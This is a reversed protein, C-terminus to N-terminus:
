KGNEQEPRFLDQMLRQFLDESEQLAKKVLAKQQEIKEVIAAFRTQLSLPPLPILLSNIDRNSINAQRVGRSIGTLKKKIQSNKLVFYVYWKNLQGRCKLKANRQNLYYRTYSDDLICVNGYDEKGVTGTMSILLDGPELIYRKLEPKEIVFVMNLINFQGTNINGIRILPIGNECYEKSKFAYGGIIELHNNLFDLNWRKENKVPDGFMEYFVSQVLNDLEELRKKQFYILQRVKELISVIGKQEELSPYKIIKENLFKKNLTIGKVAKNGGINWNQVQLSYWLFDNLIINEDIPLFAIIAENTYTLKTTIAVKGVSLKFSMLVVNEPVVKIQCEKVAQDTITEKTEIIYKECKTIDSISIWPNTGSKWYLSNKRDPTKGMQLIFLDGLRASEWSKM